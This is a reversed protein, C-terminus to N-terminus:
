IGVRGNKGRLSLAKLTAKQILSLYADADEPELLALMCHMTKSAEEKYMSRGLTLGGIFFLACLLGEIM